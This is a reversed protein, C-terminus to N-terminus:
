MCGCEKKLCLCELLKLRSFTFLQGVQRFFTIPKQGMAHADGINAKIVETFPKKVGQFLYLSLSSDSDPFHLREQAPTSFLTNEVGPFFHSGPSKTNCRAEQRNIVPGWCVPNTQVHLLLHTHLLRILWSGEPSEVTLFTGTGTGRMHGPKEKKREDDLFVVFIRVFM